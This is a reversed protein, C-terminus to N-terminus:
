SRAAHSPRGVSYVYHELGRWNVEKWITMGNREAVRRSPINEPRILSILRDTKLHEFGWERCARAAETALGQGWCDRRLHYGIEYLLEGEVEQLAIGCDGILENHPARQRHPASVGTRAVQAVVSEAGKVTGARGPTKVDGQDPKTIMAWLGVGDKQYRERNRAIWREVGARDLPAPYYRMTEADSLIRAQEEADEAVFERLILRRTELITM